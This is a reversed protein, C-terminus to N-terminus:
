GLGECHVSTVGQNRLDRRKEETYGLETLVDDTHEGLLPPAMRVTVPHGALSFPLNAVRPMPLIGADSDAGGASTVDSRPPIDLLMENSALQPDSLVQEYRLVPASPVGADVLLRMWNEVTDSAFASRTLQDIETQHELRVAVSAFRPDGMLEPVKAISCFLHWFKENPIAVLMMGDSAFLELILATISRNGLRPPDVGERDSWAIIPAQVFVSQNFLSASVYGGLGTRERKFLAALVGAAASIGTSMDIIPAAARLPKGDPEGSLSMMGSMAQFLVDTGPRKSYPGDEGFASIACYILDSRLSKMSEYDIGLREVIGVRFNHVVVDAGEVLRHVIQKGEPHTLDIVVGRKNRNVAFFFPCDNPATRNQFFRADDGAPAEIKVVDAGLDALVMTCTPGVLMRTFDVVKLGSLPLDM